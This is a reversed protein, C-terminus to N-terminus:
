NGGNKYIRVVLRGDEVTLTIDGTEDTRYVAMDRAMLREMTAKAPLARDGSACSVLAVKPRVFDLFLEGTAAASGHHSVKLVDAPVAAYAEYRGTLDSASLIQYGGMDIRLVLPLDNADQASRVKGVVPWLVEVAVTNYRVEEGAALEAIPVGQAELVDMLRLVDADVQQGAGGVPVYVQRIAVGADLLGAVGGAHDRHLHTLFLADLDRGEALLYGALETGDEGADVAMTWKGDVILAADAQGISLQVYRVEPLRTAYAGGLSIGAALCLAMVRAKWGGRFYRSLLIAGLFAGCLIAAPPSAVRVTANPLESLLRVLWLLGESGCQAVFGLGPGVGVIWGAMPVVFYLQMLAGALPVIVLNILVGYLPWQHFYIATPLLVGLQASLSVAFLRKGEFWLKALVRAVWGAQRHKSEWDWQDGARGRIAREIGPRLLLIGAVASFSLVFGASFLQLPNLLLVATMGTALTILPDSHRGQGQGVLVALLMVAARLSSASFGAMWCYWGLFLAVLLFRLTKPTRLKRLISLLGMGALTVHLGSVAMVHAIGAKRFAAREEPAMGTQDGFLMAMALRSEDGMLRQMEGRIMMRMRAAGDNWAATEWTNQISVDRLSSIGCVIGNQLLWMRFDFDHEGRKGQPHYVKGQCIIEAGDFLQPMVEEGRTQLSCYAKGTIPAGDLTIDSLVFALRDEARQIPEGYVRGTIHYAGAEPMAPYLWVQTWLLGVMLAMLGAIAKGRWSTKGLAFWLGVGLPLLLWPWWGPESHVALFIGILLSIAVVLMTHNRVPPQWIEKMKEREHM